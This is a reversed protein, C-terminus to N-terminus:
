AVHYNAAQADFHASEHMAVLVTRHKKADMYYHLATKRFSSAHIMMARRFSESPFESNLRDRKIHTLTEKGHQISKQMGRLCSEYQRLQYDFEYKM